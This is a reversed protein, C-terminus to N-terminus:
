IGGNFMDIEDEDLDQIDFIFNKFGKINFFLRQKGISTLSDLEPQSITKNLAYKIFPLESSDQQFFARYQLAALFEPVTKALKNQNENQAPNDPNPVLRQFTPTAVLLEAYNKRFRQLLDTLYQVGYTFDENIITQVEDIGLLTHKIDEKAIRGERYLMDQYAAKKIIDSEVRNLASFIQINFVNTGHKLLGSADYTIIKLDSLDPLLTKGDFLDREKQLLADWAVTMREYSKVKNDSGGTKVVERSKQKLFVVFDHLQPYQDYPLNLVKVNEPHMQADKSWMGVNIYFQIILENLYNLDDDDVNSNLLKTIQKLKEIHAMFSAYEDAVQIANGEEDFEEKVSSAFIHFPNIRYDPNALDIIQGGLAQTLGRYEGKTGLDFNTISHGAAAYNEEIMKFFVSKGMGPAGSILMGGSARKQDRHTLDFFVAGDTGTTGYFAGKPDMLSTHNFYFMGGLDRTLIGTGLDSGPLDAIRMTPRMLYQIDIALAGARTSIKFNSSQERIKRVNKELQKVTKAFVTIKTYLRKVTKNQRSVQQYLQTAEAAEDGAEAAETIKPKNISQDLKEEASSKLAKKIEESDETGVYISMVTNAFTSLNLGWFLDLNQNPYRDVTLVTYVGDETKYFKDDIDLKQPFVDESSLDKPILPTNLHNLQWLVQLTKKESMEEVNLVPSSKVISNLLSINNKLAEKNKGFIVLIYDQKRLHEGVLQAADINRDALFENITGPQTKAKTQEWYNEQEQTDEPFMLAHIQYDDLFTANFKEFEAAYDFGTELAVNQTDVGDISFLKAFGNKNNLEIFGEKTPKPNYSYAKEIDSYESISVIKKKSKTTM